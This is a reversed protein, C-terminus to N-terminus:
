RPWPVPTTPGPFRASAEELVRMAEDRGRWGRV